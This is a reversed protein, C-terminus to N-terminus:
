ERRREVRLVKILLRRDAMKPKGSSESEAAAFRSIRVADDGEVTSSIDPTELARAAM